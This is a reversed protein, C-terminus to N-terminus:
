SLFLVCLNDSKDQFLTAPYIVKETNSIYTKNRCFEKKIDIREQHWNSYIYLFLVLVKTSCLTKKLKLFHILVSFIEVRCASVYFSLFLTERLKRPVFCFCLLPIFACSSHDREVKNRKKTQKQTKAAKSENKLRKNGADEDLFKAVFTRNIQQSFPSPKLM